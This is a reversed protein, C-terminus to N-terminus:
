PRDLRELAAALRGAEQRRVTLRPVMGRDEKIEEVNEVLTRAAVIVRGIELDRKEKQTKM